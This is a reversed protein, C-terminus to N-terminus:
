RVSEHRNPVVEEPTSNMSLIGKVADFMNGWISQPQERYEIEEEWEQQINIQRSNGMTGYFSAAMEQVNTKLVSLM